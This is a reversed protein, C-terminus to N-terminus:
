FPQRYPLSIGNSFYFAKDSLQEFQIKSISKMDMSENIVQFFRKQEIKEATAKNSFENIYETLDCLRSSYSDFDM